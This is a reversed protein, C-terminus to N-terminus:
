TPPTRLASLQGPRPVRTIAIQVCAIPVEVRSGLVCPFVQGVQPASRRLAIPWAHVTAIVVQRRRVGHPGTLPVSNFRATPTTIVGGAERLENCATVVVRVFPVWCAFPDLPALDQPGSTDHRRVGAGSARPDGV